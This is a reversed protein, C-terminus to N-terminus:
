SLLLESCFSSSFFHQSHHATKKGGGRPKKEAKKERHANSKRKTFFPTSSFFVCFSFLPRKKLLLWATAAFFVPLFRHVGYTQSSSPFSSRFGFISFSSKEEKGDDEKGKLPIEEQKKERNKMKQHFRVWERWARRKEELAAYRTILLYAVYCACACVCITIEKKSEKANWPCKEEKKKKRGRRKQIEQEM